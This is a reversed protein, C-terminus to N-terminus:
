ECEAIEDLSEEKKPRGRRAAPMADPQIGMATRYIALLATGASWDCETYRLRKDVRVAKVGRLEDLFRRRLSDAPEVLNLAAWQQFSQSRPEATGPTALAAARIPVISGDALRVDAAVSLGNVIWGVAHPGDPSNALAPRLDRGEGESAQTRPLEARSADSDKEPPPSWGDGRDLPAASIFVGCTGSSPGQVSCPGFKNLLEAPTSGNGQPDRASDGVSQINIQSRAFDEPSSALGAPACKDVLNAMGHALAFDYFNM